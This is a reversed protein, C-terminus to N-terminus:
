VDRAKVHDSNEKAWIAACIGLAVRSKLAARQTAPGAPNLRGVRDPRVLCEGEQDTAFFGLTTM